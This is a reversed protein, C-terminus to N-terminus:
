EDAICISLRQAENDFGVSVINIGMKRAIFTFLGYEVLIDKDIVKNTFTSGPPSLLLNNNKSDTSVLSKNHLDLVYQKSKYKLMAVDAKKWYVDVGSSSLMKLLPVIIPTNDGDKQEFAGLFEERGDNCVDVNIEISQLASRDDCNNLTVIM